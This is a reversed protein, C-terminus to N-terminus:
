CRCRVIRESRVLSRSVSGLDVIALHVGEQSTQVPAIHHRTHKIETIMLTEYAAANNHTPVLM